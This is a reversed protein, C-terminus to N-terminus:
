KTNKNKSVNHSVFTKRAIDIIQWVRLSFDIRIDVTTKQLVDDIDCQLETGIGLKSFKLGVTRYLAGTDVYIFGLEKSATKAITSKGAGSLGCFAVGDGNIMVVTSHMQFHGFHCLAYRYAQLILFSVQRNPYKSEKPLYM